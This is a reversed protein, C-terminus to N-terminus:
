SQNINHLQVFKDLKQCTLQIEQNKIIYKDFVEILNQNSVASKILENESIISLLEIKSKLFSLVAKNLKLFSEKGDESNSCKNITIFFESPGKINEYIKIVAYADMISSPENNSVIIKTFSKELSWIKFEDIGAGLDLIVFDYNKSLKSIESLINKIIYKSSNFTLPNESLGYIIHLNEELITIEDSLQSLKSCFNDLSKVARQNLLLHINPFGLDLDVLLVKKGQRSFNLATLLSLVTKGTGGKGSIFSIINFNIEPNSVNYSQSLEVVRKLQGAIM